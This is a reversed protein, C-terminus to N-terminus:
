SFFNRDPRDSIGRYTTVTLRYLYDSDTQILELRGVINVIHHSDLYSRLTISMVIVNFSAFYYSLLFMKAFRNIRIFKLQMRAEFEPCLYQMTCIMALQGNNM